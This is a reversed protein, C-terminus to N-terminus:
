IAKTSYEHVSDLASLKAQLYKEASGFEPLIVIQKVACNRLSRLPAEVITYFSLTSLLVFSLPFM